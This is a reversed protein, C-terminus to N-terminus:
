IQYNKNDEMIEMKECNFRWRVKVIDVLIDFNITNNEQELTILLGNEIKIVNDLLFNILTHIDNFELSPNIEQNLKQVQPFSQQSFYLHKFDYMLFSLTSDYKCCRFLINHDCKVNDIEKLKGTFIESHTFIKKIDLNSHSQALSEM